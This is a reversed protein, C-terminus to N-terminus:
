DIKLNDLIKALPELNEGVLVFKESMELFRSVQFTKIKDKDAKKIDKLVLILRSKGRLEYSTINDKGGLAEIFKDDSHEFVVGEEKKEEIKKSKKKSVLYIGLIILALVIAVGFCALVIISPMDLLTRIEIM